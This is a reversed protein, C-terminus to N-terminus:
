AAGRRDDTAHISINLFEPALVRDQGCLEVLREYARQPDTLDAIVIVDIASASENVLPATEDAALQIVTVPFDRACVAAIQALDGVGYLAVRELRHSACRAFIDAYQQHALRFLKFSQSLFEATLRSKEAFGKPTLYYAYRKTPAQSIKIFGKKAARKIYANTLGLAIGLDLALRRQTVSGDRDVATLLGLTIEPNDSEVSSSSTSAPM